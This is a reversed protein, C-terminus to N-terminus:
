GSISGTPEEELMIIVPEKSALHLASMSANYLELIGDFMYFPMYLFLMPYDGIKGVVSCRL